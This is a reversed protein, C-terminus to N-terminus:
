PVRVLATVYEPEGVAVWPLEIHKRAWAELLDTLEREAEEGPAYLGDGDEDILGYKDAAREAAWECVHDGSPMPAGPDPRECRWVYFDM